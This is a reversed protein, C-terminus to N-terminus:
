GGAPQLLASLSERVSRNLNRHSDLIRLARKVFLGGMTWAYRAADPLNAFEPVSLFYPRSVDDSLDSHLEFYCRFHGLPVRGFSLLVAWRLHLPDSVTLIAPAYSALPAPAVASNELRHRVFAAVDHALPVQKPVPELLSPMIARQVELVARLASDNPVGYTATIYDGIERYLNDWRYFSLRPDPGGARLNGNTLMDVVRRTEQLAVKGSNADTALRDLVDIARLGHDHQLFFLLYKLVSHDVLVYYFRWILEGHKVQERTLTSTACVRHEKDLELQYRRMYAPDAMPSNPLVMCRLLSVYTRQDFCFQLDNKYSEMTQQPLAMILETAIPLREAAYVRRLDVYRSTKINSRRIADLTEPDTSQISIRGSDLLRNQILQTAIQKIRESSNKAFLCILERPFGYKEKTRIIHETIELDREFIGFNADAIYIGPLGRRGAWEIEAKVQDLPFLHIKQLTASGWDCFTCGYPCGRNTEIVASVWSEGDFSGDLYPSPLVSLDKIRPRDPTRVLAGRRGSRFTISPISTLAEDWDDDTRVNRLRGLLQAVTAEGEGRVAIDVEPHESMFRQCADEYKPISPGGHISIAGKVEAKVRKTLGLLEGTNWMYHSVLLVGPGRRNLERVLTSANSHFGPAFRYDKGLEGNEVARAYSTLLGSALPTHHARQCVSYVTPPTVM